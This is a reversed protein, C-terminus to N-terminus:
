RNRLALRANGRLAGPEIWKQDLASGRFLARLQADEMGAISAADFSGGIKGRDTRAGPDPRFYPCAELCLDCGYLQNQWSAEIFDPLPGSISAYHQICRRREFAPAPAFHLARSPCADVCNRCDGCLSLDALPPHRQPIVDQELDFPLLMLGLLVASSRTSSHFYARTVGSNPLGGGAAGGREQGAESAEAILLGNRGVAGLGAAVALAKEPFRSNAFRHWHKPPFLPLGAEAIDLSSAAACAALRAGIEGYWNGRAFRGIRAVPKGEKPLPLPPLGRAARDAAPEAEVDPAYSLAVVLM